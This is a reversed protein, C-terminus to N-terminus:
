GTKSEFTLFVGTHVCIGIGGSANALDEDSLEETTGAKVFKIKDPDLGLAVLTQRPNAKFMAQVQPDSSLKKIAEQIEAQM